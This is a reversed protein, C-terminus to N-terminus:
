GFLLLVNWPPTKEFECGIEFHDGTRRCSRVIVAVFGVTDPANAARIQLTGGVTAGTTLALKLGGTSRDLVYGEHAGGGNRLGPAAVLVRVPQGERRVAARRDAYSQEPPDWNTAKKESLPNTHTAYGSALKDPDLGAPKKRRPFFIVVLIVLAVGGGIVVPLNAQCWTAADELFQSFSM